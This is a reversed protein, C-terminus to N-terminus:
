VTLSYLLACAISALRKLDFHTRQHNKLALLNYYRKQCVLCRFVGTKHSKKHNLLSCPHRYGRGCQDCKHPREESGGVHRHGVGGSMGKARGSDKGGRAKGPCLHTILHHRDAFFMGCDVCIHNRTDVKGNASSSNVVGLGQAPGSPRAPGHVLQHNLLDQKRSFTQGCVSCVLLNAQSGEHRRRWEQEGLLTLSSGSPTTSHTPGDHSRLHSRLARLSAYHNGCVTCQYVETDDDKNDTRKGQSTQNGGFPVQTRRQRNSSEKHGASGSGQFSMNAMYGNPMGGQQACMHRDTQRSNQSLSSQRSSGPALSGDFRDHFELSDLGGSGGGGTAFHGSLNSTGNPQDQTHVFNSQSELGTLPESSLWDGESNLGQSSPRTKHSRLHSQLAALHPYEKCCITCQYQGTQHCRKHNVLSGAHRYSKGCEQCKFRREAESDNISSSQRVSSEGVPSSVSPQPNSGLVESNLISQPEQSHMPPPPEHTLYHLKLSEVDTHGSGCYACTYISTNIHPALMQDYRKDPLPLPLSDGLAPTYPNITPTRVAGLNHPVISPFSRGLGLSSSAANHLLVHEQFDTKNPLSIQCLHCYCAMMDDTQPAPPRSQAPAEPVLSGMSMGPPKFKSHTREHAGLAALNNFQKYCLACKYTGEQHSKKHNVLSGHHRYTRDCQDCKFPRDWADDSGPSKQKDHDHGAMMSGSSPHGRYGTDSLDQALGYDRDEVGEENEEEAHASPSLTHIRLHNKLALANPLTRSCVPCQYSGLEHSKKHSALSSAHKFFRGCQECEFRGIADHHYHARTHELLIPASLCITDCEKCPFGKARNM